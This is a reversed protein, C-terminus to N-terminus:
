SQHSQGAKFYTIKGNNNKRILLDKNVLQNAIIIEREDLSQKLISSQEKFKSLVDSEENTIAVHLNSNVLEIIKM